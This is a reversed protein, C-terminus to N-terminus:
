KSLAARVAEVVRHVDDDRMRTYLPLSLMRRYARESNPFRDRICM